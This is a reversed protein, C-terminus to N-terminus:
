EPLFRSVWQGEAKGMVGIQDGVVDLCFHMNKRREFEGGWISLKGFKGNQIGLCVTWFIYWFYFMNWPEDVYIKVM